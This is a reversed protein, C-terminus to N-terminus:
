KCKKVSAKKRLSVPHITATQRVQNVLVQATLEGTGFDLFYEYNEKQKKVLLFKGEHVCGKRYDTNFAYGKAGIKVAELGALRVVMNVDNLVKSSVKAKNKIEDRKYNWM